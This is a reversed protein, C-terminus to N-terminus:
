WKQVEIKKVDSTTIKYKSGYQTAVKHYYGRMHMYQMAYYLYKPLLRNKDLPKICIFDKLKADSKNKIELVKGVETLDGRRKIMVTDEDPPEEENCYWVKTLDALKM